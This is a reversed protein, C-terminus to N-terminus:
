AGSRSRLVALRVSLVAEQRQGAVAEREIDKATLAAILAFPRDVGHRHRYRYCTSCRRLAHIRHDGCVVCARRIM